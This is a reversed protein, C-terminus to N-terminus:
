APPIRLEDARKLERKAKLPKDKIDFFLQKEEKIQRTYGPETNNSYYLGAEEANAIANKKAENVM